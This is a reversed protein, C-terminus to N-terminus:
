KNEEVGLLKLLSDLNYEAEKISLNPTNQVLFEFEM